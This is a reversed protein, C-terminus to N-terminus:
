NRESTTTDDGKRVLAIMRGFIPSLCFVYLRLPLAVPLVIFPHVAFPTHLTNVRVRVSNLASARLYIFYRMHQLATLHSNLRDAQQRFRRAGHSRFAINPPYKEIDNSLLCSLNASVLLQTKVNFALLLKRSSSAVAAESHYCDCAATPLLLRLCCESAATALLLRLCRDSAATPLLLRM